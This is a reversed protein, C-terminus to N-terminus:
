FINFLLVYIEKCSYFLYVNLNWVILKWYGGIIIFYEIKFYFFINEEMELIVYRFMIYNILLNNELYVFIYIFVECICLIFILFNNRIYCKVLLKMFFNEFFWNKYYLNLM